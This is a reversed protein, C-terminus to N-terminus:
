EDDGGDVVDLLLRQAERYSPALELAMLVARRAEPKQEDAQLSVAYQYYAEARDVPNLGLIARRARVAQSTMGQSAYLEALWGQVDRNYPGVDLSREYYYIAEDVRGRERFLTGLETSENLGHESISLYRTLLDILADENADARYVAALGQYANGAEIYSPYLAIAKNFHAEAESHNQAELADYGARLATLMENAQNGGLRELIGPESDEGFPNPMGNLIGALERAETKLGERFAADIEDLSAGTADRISQGDKKGAAFGELITRLSAEGYQEAIFGIIRSAHYYSLLIQGQFSPRTFGRDMNSLPLLKDGEFAMLLQLQMERGWEPRAQREEYVALGEAFWRPMRYNSLGISMTHVLEHWLTRAWNYSGPEQGEPTNLALVDGFSVGLLGLHPVGAIRVAFDDPDNYAELLIKDQPTYPYKEYLAAYSAEALDLMAAGLVDRESNHIILRFNESELLAFDEYEDLLTLTNGVFLNFPDQEFSFELYRRAEQSRGLRLLSIGLQAYADANRRDSRAGREAFVVADPYRFKLECNKSLTNYFLGARPNVALARQEVQQFATSDGRLYHATALHALTEVSSPNIELGKEALDATEDYLGDLINLGALISHAEVSGPNHELAKRAYEEQRAFSKSLRAYGVYLPAYNQNVALAEDFTRQADADNYKQRFLDGWWYLNRINQADIQHATRFASNADRYEGLHAAAKGAIGLEEAARFENNKYPRFIYQYVEVAQNGQGTADLLEGLALLNRWLDIKLELVARYDASAEELRGVSEYLRGRAHLIYPNSPHDNALREFQRLGEDYDGPLIFTEAYYVVDLSQLASEDDMRQQFQSRAKDYDGRQLALYAEDSADQAPAPAACILTGVLAIVLGIPRLRM